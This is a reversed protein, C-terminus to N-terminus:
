KQEKFRKCRDAKKKKGDPKVKKVVHGEYPEQVNEIDVNSEWKKSSAVVKKTLQLINAPLPSLLFGGPVSFCTMIQEIMSIFSIM